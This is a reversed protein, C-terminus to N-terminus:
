GGKSRKSKKVLSVHDTGASSSSSPGVVDLDCWVASSVCKTSRQQRQRWHRWSCQCLGGDCCRPLESEVQHNGGCFQSPKFALPDEFYIPSLAVALVRGTNSKMSANVNTNIDSFFSTQFQFVYSGGQIWEMWVFECSCSQDWRDLGAMCLTLGIWHFAQLKRKLFVVSFIGTFFLTAGSPHQPTPTCTGKPM